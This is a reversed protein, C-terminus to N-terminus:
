IEHSCRGMAAEVIDRLGGMCKGLMLAAIAPLLVIGDLRGRVTIPWLPGHTNDVGRQMRRYRHISTPDYQCVPRDYREERQHLM